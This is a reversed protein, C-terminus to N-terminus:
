RVADQLEKLITARESYEVDRLSKYKALAQDAKEQEHRKNLLLGLRYYAEALDPELSIAKELEAEAQLYEGKRELLRGMHFHPLAYSPTIALAQRFESQADDLRNQEARLMGFFCHYFPNRPQLSLAEALPKEAEELRLAALHISGLLFLARDFHPDLKLAHDLLEIAAAQDDATIYSVAMSYPPAPSGPDLDAAKQLVAVAKQQEGYKQYFRGLTLLLSPDRPAFKVASNMEELAAEKEGTLFHVKAKLSHYQPSDKVLDQVSALAASASAVDKSELCASALPLAIEPQQPQLRDASGLAGCAPGPVGHALFLKGTIVDFESSSAFQPGAAEAVRIAQDSQGAELHARILNVALEPSLPGAKRAKEFYRAALAPNKDELLLVGLNYLANVATPNLMVALRLSAEAAPRDGAHLTCIGLYFFGESFRPNLQTAKQFCQRAEPYKKARLFELGKHFQAEWGEANPARGTYGAPCLGQTCLGLVVLIAAAKV